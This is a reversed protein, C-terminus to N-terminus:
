RDASVIHDFRYTPNPRGPSLCRLAIIKMEFKEKANANLTERVIQELTTPSMEVRANLTLLANTSKGALGRFNMTNGKGTLNGILFNDGTELIIKVHGVSAKRNDFQQSLDQLLKHAFADWDTSKGSIEVTSNLWGLVAEGEAYTNYDVEALRQGADTRNMVEKLWEEIGEGTVASVTMVDADPFNLKVKEKLLVLESANILDAKSIMIIDSEELQKRFIYAASPHLGATGSNLIDTLHASDAMVSLPSVLLEREMKEKLPQVITASLDTCSGVPEAIIVDANAEDRVKQMASILGGFNCCFCSGSVEAIKVKNHLLIATDVLDPAQDNTILGVRKGNDMIRRAAEWLLTTKGAGLFGGVLILRTTKM